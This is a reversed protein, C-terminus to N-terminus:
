THDVSPDDVYHAEPMAGSIMKAGRGVFLISRCFKENIKALAMGEKMYARGGRHPVLALFKEVNDLIM